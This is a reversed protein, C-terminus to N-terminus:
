PGLKWLKIPLDYNKILSQLRQWHTHDQHTKLVLVIGPKKGTLFSYNLSQGIAEPWKPAFEIEIAYSHTLCDIRQGNKLRYEVEGGMGECWVKQYWAEAPAANVMKSTLM